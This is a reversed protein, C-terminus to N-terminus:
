QLIKIKLTYKLSVSENNELLNPAFGYKCLVINLCIQAREVAELM